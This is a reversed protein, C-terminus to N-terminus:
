PVIFEGTGSNVYFVKNVKDYMGPRNDKKRIVPIFHRIITGNEFIRCYHIKMSTAPNIVGALSMGFLIIPYTGTFDTSAYTNNALTGSDFFVTATKNTGKLIFRYFTGTVDPKWQSDGTTSSSGLDIRLKNTSDTIQLFQCDNTGTRSGFRTTASTQTFEIGYVDADISSNPIIGTDIYQTGSCELYDVEKYEDPVGTCIFDNNGANTYFTDTIFDYMGPKNDEKRIAPVMDRKIVDNDYAKFYYLKGIFPFELTGATNVGGIYMPYEGTYTNATNKIEIEGANINAANKSKVIRKYGKTLYATSTAHSTGYDSRVKKAPVQLFLTFSKGNTTTNNTRSGFLAMANTNLDFNTTNDIDTIVMSNSSPIFGTDIYQAGLFELYDVAKYKSPLRTLTKGIGFTYRQDGQNPYFKHNVKDYLGHQGDTKRRVPLYDAVLENNQYIKLYYLKMTSLQHGGASTGQDRNNGFIWMKESKPTFNTIVDTVTVLPDNNLKYTLTGNNATIVVENLGPQFVNQLRRNTGATTTGNWFLSSNYSTSINGVTYDVCMIQSNSSELGQVCFATTYGIATKDYKCEIKYNDGYFQVDTEIWQNGSSQIYEVPEYLVEFDNGTYPIYYYYQAKILGGTIFYVTGKNGYLVHNINDFMYGTGDEDMAPLYDRIVTGNDIMKCSYLRQPAATYLTNDAKHMNFLVLNRTTTFTQQTFTSLINGDLYVKNDDLIFTHKNLDVLTSTNEFDGMGVQWPPQFSAEPSGQQYIYYVHSSNSDFTGFVATGKSIQLEQLTIETRLTNKGTIGTDIYQTGTSEIYEVLRIEHGAVFSGTGQNYFFQKTVKDYLCAVNNEDLVPIFDRVLKGSAYIQCKYLKSKTYSVGYSGNLYENRAFLYYNLNCDFAPQTYSESVGDYIFANNVTDMKLNHIDTDKTCQRTYTTLMYQIKANSQGSSLTLHHRDYTNTGTTNTQRIAGFRTYTQNAPETLSYTIDFGMNSDANIGTDIYQTGTAEIYEVERYSNIAKEKYKFTGTGQNYFFQDSVKDYLCPVKNNDLVPIMDRVLIDNEYIKFYYLNAKSIAPNVSGHDNLAFITLPYNVTFESVTNTLTIDNIKCVNKDKVVIYDTNNTLKTSSTQRNNYESSIYGSGDCGLGYGNGAVTENRSLFLWKFNNPTENMKFKAEIKTNSSPCYGTDIYQTGTSEIYELETFYKTNKYMPLFQKSYFKQTNGAIFDGTGANTFFAKTVSDYLGIANDSNRKAPIFDRVLSDNDYIKASYLKMSANYDATGVNNRAFLYLSHTINLQETTSYTYNFKNGDLTVYTNTIEASKLNSSAYVSTTGTNGQQSPLSTNGAVFTRFYGTDQTSHNGSFAYANTRYDTTIVGCLYATTTWTYDLSLVTKTNVTPIYKTDIYQTGTSEIYNLQTYGNPLLSKAKLPNGGVFEGSSYTNQYFVKNVKDYMGLVNDTRKVPIMDRVLNGNTDWAKFYYIISPYCSSKGASSGTTNMYGFLTTNVGTNYTKTFDQIYEGNVYVKNDKWAFEHYETIKASTIVSNNQGNTFRYVGTAENNRELCYYQGSLIVKNSVNERLRCGIEFDAFYNLGTDIYAGPKASETISELYEIPQYLNDILTNELFKM